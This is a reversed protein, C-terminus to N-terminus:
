TKRSNVSLRSIFARSVQLSGEASIRSATAQSLSSRAQAVDTRTLEGVNFREITEDLQKEFSENNETM